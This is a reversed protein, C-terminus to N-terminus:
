SARQKVPPWSPIKGAAQMRKEEAKSWEDATMDDRPGSSSKSSIKGPVTTLPTQKGPAASAPNRLNKEAMKGLRAYHMIVVHRPDTVDSLEKVSYGFNKVTYDTIQKSTEPSWKPIAKSLVEHANAQSLKAQEAAERSASEWRDNIERQKTSHKGQLEARQEKLMERKRWYANVQDPQEQQLRDWDLKDYQAIQATLNEVHFDIRMMETVDKFTDERRKQEAAFSQVSQKHKATEAEHARRQEAIEQTKKTYDAHRLLAPSLVKPIKYKQGDEWEVEELGDDEVQTDEPPTEAGDEGTTGLLSTQSEDGTTAVEPAAQGDGTAPAASNTADDM